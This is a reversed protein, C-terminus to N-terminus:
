PGAHPYRQLLRRLPRPLRAALRHRYPRCWRLFRQTVRRTHFLGMSWFFQGISVYREVRTFWGSRWLYRFWRYGEPHQYPNKWPKNPGTFHLISAGDLLKSRKPLLYKGFPTDQWERSREEWITSRMCQNVNWRLDLARWQGSLVVNLVEQDAHLINISNTRLYSLSRTTINEQRWIETNILMVGSNFYPEYKNLGLEKYNYLGDWSSVYPIGTDQVASLVVDNPYSWLKSIDDEIMLDGDLYIVKKYKDPLIDPIFLPIYGIYTLEKRTIPLTKVKDDVNYWIVKTNERKNAINEARDKKARSIKNTIIHAEVYYKSDINCLVSFLTVAVSRLYEEDCGFVIIITNDECRESNSM